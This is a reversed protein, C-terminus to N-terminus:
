PGKARLLVADARRLMAREDDDIGFWRAHATLHAVFEGLSVALDEILGAAEVIPKGRDPSDALAQHIRHLDGPELEELSETPLGALANVCAVVRRGNAHAEALTRGRAGATSVYALAGQPGSQVDVGNVIRWPEPTHESM